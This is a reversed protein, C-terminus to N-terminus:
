ESNSGDKIQYYDKYWEVFKAVGQEVSTNPRFDTAQKLASVDAITARVDGPQM